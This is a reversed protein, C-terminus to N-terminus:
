GVAAGNEGEYLVVRGAVTGLINVAGVAGEEAYAAEIIETRVRGRRGFEGEGCRESWGRFEGICRGCGWVCRDRGRSESGYRNGGGDRFLRGVAAERGPELEVVGGEVFGAPRRRSQAESGQRRM